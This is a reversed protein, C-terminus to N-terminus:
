IMVLLVACGLEGLIKLVRRQCHGGERNVVFDAGPRAWDEFRQRLVAGKWEGSIGEMGGM